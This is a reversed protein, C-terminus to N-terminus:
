QEAEESKPEATTLADLRELRDDPFLPLKMHLLQAVVELHRLTARVHGSVGWLLVWLVTMHRTGLIVDVAGALAVLLLTLAFRQGARSWTDGSFVTVEVPETRPQRAARQMWTASVAELMLLPGLAVAALRLLDPATDWYGTMAAALATVVALTYDRWIVWIASWSM